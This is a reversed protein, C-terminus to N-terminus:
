KVDCASQYESTLQKVLDATSPSSDILGVGQGASWVSKWATIGEPLNPQFMAHPEPLNDADLGVEELSSRMFSAPLGSIANTYIIDHTNES